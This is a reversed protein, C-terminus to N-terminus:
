AAKQLAIAVGRVDFRKRFEEHINCLTVRLYNRITAFDRGRLKEHIPMLAFYEQAFNEPINMAPKPPHLGIHQLRNALDARFARWKEEGLIEPAPFGDFVSLALDRLEEAMRLRNDALPRLIGEVAETVMAIGLPFARWRSEEVATQFGPDAFLVKSYHGARARSYEYIGKQVLFAANRSIFLAVAAPDRIPPQRRLLRDLFGM